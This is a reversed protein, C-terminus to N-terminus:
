RRGADVFAHRVVKRMLTPLAHRGLADPLAWIGDIGDDEVQAVAVTLELRFHTFGHQVVGPLVRWAAALPAHAVPDPVADLWDSTPVGVMGGLLGKDPRGRLLV